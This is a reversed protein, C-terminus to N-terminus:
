VFNANVFGLYAYGVGIIGQMKYHPALTMEVFKQLIKINTWNVKFVHTLNSDFIYYDDGCKYGCIAHAGVVSDYFHIAAHDLIWANPHLFTFTPMILSPNSAFITDVNYRLLVFKVSPKPIEASYTLYNYIIYEEKKLILPYLKEIALQTMYGPKKTWNPTSRIGAVEVLKEAYKTRNPGITDQNIEEKYFKYFYRYFHSGMLKLPCTNLIPVKEISKREEVPLEYYKELFIKFCNSSLLLTNFITNFWCTGITQRMGIDRCYKAGFKTKVVPTKNTKTMSSSSTYDVPRSYCVYAYSVSSAKKEHIVIGPNRWDAEVVLHSASHVLYYKGNLRFGTWLSYPGYIVQQVNILAHDFTFGVPVDTYNVRNSLIIICKTVPTIQSFVIPDSSIIYEDDNFLMPMLRSIAKQLTMKKTSPIRAAKKTGSAFYQLMEARSGSASSQKSSLYNYFDFSLLFGNLSHTFWNVPKLTRRKTVEIVDVEIFDGRDNHRIYGISYYGVDTIDGIAYTKKFRMAYTKVNALSRWDFKEVTTEYSDYVYYEGGCTYGAVAHGFINGKFDTFTFYIIAVDLVFTSPVNKYKQIVSADAYNVNEIFIFQISDTVKASDVDQLTTMYETPKLLLNMVRALVMSPNMGVRQTDWKQTRVKTLDILTKAHDVGGSGSEKFFHLLYQYFHSRELKLPCVRLGDVGKIGKILKREDVPLEKYKGRFFAYLKPSLLLVNFVTNFWCTASMQQMGIRTCQGDISPKASNNKSISKSKSEKKVVPNELLLKKGIKGTKLVCRGTPPNVIKDEACKVM